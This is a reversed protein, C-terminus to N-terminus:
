LFSHAFSFYLLTMIAETALVHDISFISDQTFVSGAIRNLERASAHDHGFPKEVIVRADRALGAAGLGEIVTGFLAPPIALYHAPRRAHGLARKLSKFTDPDRYDGEVYRLLSLLHRLAPRDNIRGSAKISESARKRLQALSWNSSAVGIVPVKLAGRKALGYLAPFIKKRALDGTVGFLVLADSKAAERVNGDM